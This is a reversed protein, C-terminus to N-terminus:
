CCSGLELLISGPYVLKVELLSLECSSVLSSLSGCSKEDVGDVLM